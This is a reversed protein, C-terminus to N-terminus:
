GTISKIIDQNINVTLGYQTLMTPLKNKINDQMIRSYIESDDVAGDELPLRKIIHYGYVSECMGIENIGLSRTTDEFESVMEGSTFYYGDPQAISGPDESYQSVLMDFNEGELALMLLADATGKQQAITAADYPTKTSTDMTSILIHKAHLYNDNYYKKVNEETLDDAFIKEVAYDARIMRKVFEDTIGNDALYANYGDEGRFNYTIINAHETEQTALEEDSFSLGMAKFLAETSLMTTADEIAYSLASGIDLSNVTYSNVYMMLEDKNFSYSGVSVAASGGESRRVTIDRTADNYGVIAGLTESIFRLPVMTYGNETLQPAEALEKNAGNVAATKNGIQLTILTGNDEVTVTQTSGDWGVNAGFAESIVRLPVLTTGEGVVYPTEVLFNDGNISLVSDGVRFRIEVTGEAMAAPIMAAALAAACIASIIKKM